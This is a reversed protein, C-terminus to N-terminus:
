AAPPTITEPFGAWIPSFRGPTRGEVPLRTRLERAASVDVESICQPIAWLAADPGTSAVALFFGPATVCPATINGAEDRAAEAVIWATELVRSEDWRGAPMEDSPPTWLGPLAAAAADRDSFRFLYVIM